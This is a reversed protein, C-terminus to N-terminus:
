KGGKYIESQPLDEILSHAQAQYKHWAPYLLGNLAEEMIIVGDRFDQSEAPHFSDVERTMAFFKFKINKIEELKNDAYDIEYQEAETFVAQGDVIQM